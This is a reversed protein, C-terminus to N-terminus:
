KHALISNLLTKNALLKGAGLIAAYEPDEPVYVNVGLKASLYESLGTIRSAGGVAYIGTRNILGATEPPCMTLIKEVADGVRKYYPELAEYIDAARVMRNSVTQTRLDTGRVLQASLDNKLLSGVTEKLRRASALGLNMNHKGAVADLIARDMADGGINLGCGTIVGNFALAAIETTGGGINCVLGGQEAVPMNIGVASLIINEILTVDKIRRSSEAVIEEYMRHENASLGTPIGLLVKVRPPFYTDPLIRAIYERLLLKASEADTIIGDAVPNIVPTKEPAKGLMAYAASGTALVQRHKGGTLFAISTPERLAIGNGPLFISTFSTGIEIAIEMQRM